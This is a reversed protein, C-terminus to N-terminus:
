PSRPQAASADGAGILKALDITLGAFLKPRFVEGATVGAARVYGEPTAFYEEITLADPEIIWYWRVGNRFYADFKEFRDREPETSTVEIVLDPAGHIKQDTQEHLQERGASVFSIDPIYAHEGDPLFVDVEMFVRGLRNSTAFQKISYATELVVDQHRPTPSPMPILRGKEFEFFPPGEPLSKYEQLSIHRSQALNHLPAAITM